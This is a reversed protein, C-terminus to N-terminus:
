ASACRKAEYEPMGLGILGGAIGGTAAGVGAGALAAMIPGAAIFPGVWPHGLSWYWGRWRWNLEKAGGRNCEPAKYHARGNGQRRRRSGV